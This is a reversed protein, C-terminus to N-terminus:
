LRNVSLIALRCRPGNPGLAKVDQVLTEGMAKEHGSESDIQVYRFFTDLLREANIM